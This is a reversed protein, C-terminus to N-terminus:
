RSTKVMMGGKRRGFPALIEAIEDTVVPAKGRATDFEIDVAGSGLGIKKLGETESPASRDSALLLKAMECCADKVPQPMANNPWFVCPGREPRAIRARPWELAQTETAHRGQWLMSAELTRTATILAAKKREDDLGPLWDGPYLAAAFYLEADALSIYCNADALGTGDEPTLTIPM